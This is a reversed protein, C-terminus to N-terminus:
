NEGLVIKPSRIQKLINNIKFLIEGKSVCLPTGKMNLSYCVIAFAFKIKRLTKYAYCHGAPVIRYSAISYSLLDQM